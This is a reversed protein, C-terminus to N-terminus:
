KQVYIDRHDDQMWPRDSASYPVLPRKYTVLENAKKEFEEKSKERIPLIIGLEYNNINLSPTTSGTQLQGWASPTLNHSGIYVYGEHIPNPSQPDPVHTALLLKTHAAIRDRKSVGRYFLERPFNADEWVKKGCFITGGGFIGLHSREIEDHTPFIIKLPFDRRDNFKGQQKKNSKNPVKYPLSPPTETRQRTLSPTFYSTPHIGSCSALFQILWTPTYRGISSGTGEVEWKGGKSFGLSKVSKALSALGGGKDFEEGDTYKGQLSHVLRVEKSSEFDYDKVYSLFKKPAGLEAEGGGGTLQALVALFNRSFQTHTPNKFPDAGAPPPSSLLPFDHVYFANDITAWDYDLANATPIIFRCFNDHFYVMLKTHMCGPYYGSGKDEPIVRFLHQKDGLGVQVAQRKLQDGKARPM